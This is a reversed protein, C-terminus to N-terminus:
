REHTWRRTLPSPVAVPRALQLALTDPRPSPRTVTSISSALIDLNKEIPPAPFLAIDLNKKIPPARFLALVRNKKIHPALSLGIFRSM